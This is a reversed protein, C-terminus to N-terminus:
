CCERGKEEVVLDGMWLYIDNGAESVHSHLSPVVVVGVVSVSKNDM